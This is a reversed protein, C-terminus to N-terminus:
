PCMPLIFLSPLVLMRGIVARGSLGLWQQCEARLSLGGDRWVSEVELLQLDNDTALTPPINQGTAGSWRKLCM